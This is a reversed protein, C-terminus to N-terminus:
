VRDAAKGLSGDTVSVFRPVCGHCTLADFAPNSRDQARINDAIAPQHAVTRQDLQWAHDIRDDAGAAARGIDPPRMRHSLAPNNPAAM